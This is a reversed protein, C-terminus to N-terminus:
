RKDYVKEKELKAIIDRCNCKDTNKRTFVGGIRCKKYAPCIYLYNCIYKTEEQKKM